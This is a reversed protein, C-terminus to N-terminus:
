RQPVANQHANYRALIGIYTGNAQIRALGENFLQAYAEAHPHAKTFMIYSAGDPHIPSSTAYQRASGPLIDKLLLTGMTEDMPLLDFRGADLMRLASAEDNALTAELKNAEYFSLYGAARIGGLRHARLAQWGTFAFQPTRDKRYFIVFRHYLFPKTFYNLVEREPTIGAPFAGLIQNHKLEHEIRSWPKLEVHATVGMAAYAARVIDTAIGTKEPTNIVYPPWEVSHLTITPELTHGPASCLLVLCLAVLLQTAHIHAAQLM